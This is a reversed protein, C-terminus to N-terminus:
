PKVYVNLTIAFTLNKSREDARTIALSGVNSYRGLREVSQLFTQLQDYTGSLQFSIPLALVDGAKVTQSTATPLGNSAQFSAAPLSMGASTALQQIQLLLTSQNKDKPLAADLKVLVPQLEQFQKKLSTLQDLHESAIEADTSIHSLKVTQDKMWLTAQYYGYGIGGLMVAGLGLLVFFFRKPSLKM